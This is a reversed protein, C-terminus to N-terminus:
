FLVSTLINVNELPHSIYQFKRRHNHGLSNCGSQLVTPQLIDSSVGSNHVCSRICTLRDSVDSQLNQGSNKELVRDGTYDLQRGTDAEIQPGQDTTTIVNVSKKRYSTHNM